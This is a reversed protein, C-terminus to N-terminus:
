HRGMAVVMWMTAVGALLSPLKFVFEHWRGTALVLLAGIWNYLPPKTAGQNLTDRPLLWRGNCVIDATYGITKSQDKDYLDSAGFIRAGLIVGATMVFLAVIPWRRWAGPAPVAQSLAARDITLTGSM